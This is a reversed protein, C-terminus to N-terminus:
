SDQKKRIENEEREKQTETETERGRERQTETEREGEGEREEQADELSIRKQENTLLNVITAYFNHNQVM